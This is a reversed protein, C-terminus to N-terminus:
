TWGGKRVRHCCLERRNVSCRCQALCLALHLLCWCADSLGIRARRAGTEATKDVVSLPVQCLWSGALATRGLGCWMLPALMPTAM